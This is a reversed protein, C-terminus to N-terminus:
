VIISQDLRDDITINKSVLNVSAGVAAVRHYWLLMMAAASMYAIAPLTRKGDTLRESRYTFTCAHM